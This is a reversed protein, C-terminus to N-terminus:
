TKHDRQQLKGVLRAVPASVPHDCVENLTGPLPQGILAEISRSLERDVDANDDIVNNREDPDSTLDFLHPTEDRRGVHRVLNWQKTRVSVSATASGASFESWGSVITNRIADRTGDVLGRASEGDTEFPVGLYDLITPMVDHTQVFSDIRRNAPGQPHRLLWLIGTNCRYMAGDGKGFSGKDYVQTGHDSLIMVLTDESFGSNNIKDLLVGVWEDVFSVEGFYLAKTREIEEESMPGQEFGAGPMIFDKGKYGPAYTDAYRTPPDWPEHPDFAEVWLMFPKNTANDDLWRCAKQMVQACLYEEESKRGRMNWLYQILTAHRRWDIPERVHNALTDAISELSGTRYNDSEQGRIFEYSSFGRTYNMTPKFMHYVDSILGTTYGYSSLIEAITDQEPPIKHWGAAHHWHGRRDFNYRWPFSRRGTLFARRVQLTPQGEGYAEEFSVGAKAFRDLNPTSVSSLRKGPGVIDHRFTDLVIVVVNMFRDYIM